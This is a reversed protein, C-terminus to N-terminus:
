KNGAISFILNKNDTNDNLENIWYDLSELTETNSIDNVSIPAIADKYYLNPM